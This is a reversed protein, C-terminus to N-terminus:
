GFPDLLQRADAADEFHVLLDLTREITDGTIPMRANGANDRFKAALHDASLPKEPSGVPDSAEITVTRGDRHRATIALWGKPRDARPAGTIRDALTLVAADGLGAVDSIGVRGNALACAVLFPQAFQAQVV